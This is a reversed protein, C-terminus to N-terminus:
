TVLLEFSILSVVSLLFGNISNFIYRARVHDFSEGLLEFSKYAVFLAILVILAIIYISQVDFSLILLFGAQITLLLWIFTIRHIAHKGFRRFATPFGAKKYDKHYIMVLLWFHPVQWIFFLLALSLFRIDELVGGASLWGIAPPIVGLLAGPVVAFASVRKLPTYVLNYWILTFAFIAIGMLGLQEFMLVSASVILTIAIILGTAPAMKGSAVPRHATRKMQADHKYEQVQNLASVGLALIFVALTPLIVGADVSGKALIYAFIVSLSVAFSLLFKTLVYLDKIM